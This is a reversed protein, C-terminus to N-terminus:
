PSDVQAKVGADPQARPKASDAEEKAAAAEPVAGSAYSAVCGPPHTASAGAKRCATETFFWRGHEFQISDPDIGVMKFNQQCSWAREDTPKSKEGDVVPGFLRIQEAGQWYHFSMGPPDAPAQRAPRLTGMPAGKSLPHFTMGQCVSGSPLRVYLTARNRELAALTEGPLADCFYVLLRENTLVQDFQLADSQWQGSFEEDFKEIQSVLKQVSRLPMSAECRMDRVFSFPLSSLSMSGARQEAVVLTKLSETDLADCQCSPLAAVLAKQLRPWREAAPAGEVSRVAENLPECNAFRAYGETALQQRVRPDREALLRAALEQAPDSPSDGGDAASTGKQAASTRLLLRINASAPLEILYTRVTRIDADKAAAVYISANAAAKEFAGDLLRRAQKAREPATRGPVPNGDVAASREFIELVPGSGPASGLTSQALNVKTSGALSRVPLQGVFTALQEPTMSCPRVGPGTQASNPAGARCSLVCGLLLASVLSLTRM